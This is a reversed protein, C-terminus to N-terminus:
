GEALWDQEEEMDGQPEEARSYEFQGHSVKLEPIEVDLLRELKKMVFRERPEVLSVVTGPRITM